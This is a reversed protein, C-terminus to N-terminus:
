REGPPPAAAPASIKNRSFLDIAMCHRRYCRDVRHGDFPLGGCPRRGPRAASRAPVVAQSL